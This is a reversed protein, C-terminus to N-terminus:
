VWIPELANALSTSFKSLWFGGPNREYIANLIAYANDRWNACNRCLIVEGNADVVRLSVPAM